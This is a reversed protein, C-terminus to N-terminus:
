EREAEFFVGEYYILAHDQDLLYFFCGFPSDKQASVQYYVLEDEVIGLDASSVGFDEELQGSTVTEREYGTVVSGAGDVNTWLSAIGYELRAGVLSDIQSQDLAYVQSLKYDRVHWRGYISTGM